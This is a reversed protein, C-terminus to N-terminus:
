CGTYSLCNVIYSHTIDMQNSANFCTPYLQKLANRFNADPITVFQAQACFSFAMLCLLIIKKM